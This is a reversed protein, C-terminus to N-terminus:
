KLAGTFLRAPDAACLRAEPRRRALLTAAAAADTLTAVPPLLGGLECHGSSSLEEDAQLRSPTLPAAKAQPRGATQSIGAVRLPKRILQYTTAGRRALCLRVLPASVSVSNM